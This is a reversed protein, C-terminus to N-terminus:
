SNDCNEFNHECFVDSETITENSLAIRAMRGFCEVELLFLM